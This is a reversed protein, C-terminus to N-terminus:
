RHHLRGALKALPPSVEAIAATPCIETCCFCRVCKTDDFVPTPALTVAQTGCIEACNGCRTCAEKDVLRPRATMLSRVTRSLPGPGAVGADADWKAAVFGHEAVIADGTLEYPHELDILGRRQAAALVYIEHRRHATRDALAADLAVADRAAFLSGLKRPTGNGPGKGEMAVIGDIITFRPAIALHLDLLMDAFEDRRQARVHLQAKSLGSVCGFTLKTGGTLRMLGHTKLIGVQIIGDAELWPQGVPFSRFLRASPANLTAVHEDVWVAAVQEQECVAAIGSAKYARMVFGRTGPGGPSDGVFPEAGAAKLARLVCRLTEPNTSVAREPPAGRLLNIKVAIREGPKVLAAWGGFPAVAREVAAALGTGHDPQAIHAVLSLRRSTVADSM